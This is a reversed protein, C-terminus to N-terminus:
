FFVTSLKLIAAAAASTLYRVLYNSHHYYPASQLLSLSPGQTDVPPPKLNAIAIKVIAKLHFGKSPVHHVKTASRHNSSLSSLYKNVTLPRQNSIRKYYRYVDTLMLFGLAPLLCKKISHTFDTPSSMQLSCTKHLLM